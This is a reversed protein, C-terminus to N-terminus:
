NKGYLIKHMNPFAETAKEILICCLATIIALVSLVLFQMIESITYELHGIYPIEVM